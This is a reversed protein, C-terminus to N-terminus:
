KNKTSKSEISGKISELKENIKQLEHIVIRFQSEGADNAITGIEENIAYKKYKKGQNFNKAQSLDTNNLSAQKELDFRLFEDASVEFRDSLILLDNLSPESVGNEWNGVTNHKKNVWTSVESQKQQKKKRLYRLNKPFFLPM